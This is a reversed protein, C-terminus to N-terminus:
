RQEGLAAEAAAVTNHMLMAVTMPGVGGPVPTIASAIEAVPDFDVDGCLRTGKPATADEIRHIGVDIVAAGPKVMEATIARPRGMAAILIDAELTYSPLDVTRSHCITVTADAGDGKQMLLAAVPKGVINSRGVVVAHAGRTEVGGRVLLEVIGAPTCPRLGPIGALLRGQNIPHFGDADKAPDIAEIVRREDMQPPLPLQVLIGDVAADANLRAVLALLDAEPTEAPLRITENRVGVVASAKEKRGVYVQSAPDEGVLVVTLGPPRGARLAFATARQKVEERIVRSTDKGSLIRATM